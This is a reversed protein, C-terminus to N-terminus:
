STQCKDVGSMVLPNKLPNRHEGLPGRALRHHRRVCPAGHPRTLAGGKDGRCLVCDVTSLWFCPVRFNSQPEYLIYIIGANEAGAQLAVWLIQLLFKIEEQHMHGFYLSCGSRDLPFHLRSCGCTAPRTKSVCSDPFCVRLSGKHKSSSRLGLFRQM